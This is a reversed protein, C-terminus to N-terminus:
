RVSLRDPEGALSEDAEEEVESELSDFDVVEDSEEDESDDPDDPDDPDDELEVVAAGDLADVDPWDEDVPSEALQASRRSPVVPAIPDQRARADCCASEEEHVGCPM